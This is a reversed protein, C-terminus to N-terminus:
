SGKIFLCKSAAEKLRSYLEKQINMINLNEENKGGKKNGGFPFPNSRGGHPFTPFPTPM